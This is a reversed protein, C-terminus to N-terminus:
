FNELIASVLSRAVDRSLRDLAVGSEEFFAADDVSIEYRQKAEFSPRDFLVRGTARETLQAQLLVIVQVATARQTTPDYITPYEDYRIIAGSLVADAENPDAVVRYRTRSLLERMMASPLADSIRSRATVNGFAPVAITRIESPLLDAHGGVHYGCGALWPLASALL